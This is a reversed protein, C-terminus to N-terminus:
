IEMSQFLDSDDLYGCDQVKVTLTDSLDSDFSINSLQSPIVDKDIRPVDTYKYFSLNDTAQQYDFFLEDLKEYENGITKYIIENLRLHLKINTIKSVIRDRLNLVSLGSGTEIVFTSAILLKSGLNVNLQDISFRHIRKSKTTSKVEIKDKSDNFDYKDSPSIHWSNILYQPNRSQEILLLEAWLGQISKIPPKSISSFLDIVKGLERSLDMESPLEALQQLIISFFDTFYQQLDKNVTKLLVITFVENSTRNSERINCKQSFLVSILELNIDISKGLLECKIFFLPYGETSIGIKHYESYPVSEVLIFDQSSSHKKQVELFVKYGSKDMNNRTMM